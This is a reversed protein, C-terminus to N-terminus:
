SQGKVSIERVASVSCRHERTVYKCDEGMAEANGHLQCRRFVSKMSHPERIGSSSPAEEVELVTHLTCKAKVKTNRSCTGVNWRDLLRNSVKLSLTKIPKSWGPADAQEAALGGLGAAGITASAALGAAGITASAALGAASSASIAADLLADQAELGQVSHEWAM